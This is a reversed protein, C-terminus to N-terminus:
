SEKKSEEKQLFLAEEIVSTLDYELISDNIFITEIGYKYFLSEVFNYDEQLWLRLHQSSIKYVIYDAEENKCIFGLFNHNQLWKKLFLCITIKESIYRFEEYEVSDTEKVENFQFKKILEMYRKLIKDIEKNVKKKFSDILEIRINQESLKEM